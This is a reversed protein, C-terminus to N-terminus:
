GDASALRDAMEADFTRVADLTQSPELALHELITFRGPRTSPALAVADALQEVTLGLDQPRCPLHQRHLCAVLQTVRLDDGRLWSAFLAGLAALEGHNGVTPYLRDVAHLIEHCAGSCPRSSGAVSMALGSLVLAEALAVLFADDEVGDVRHLVSEAGARAFAVALGDVAEGHERGALEWDAVACLNSVADGVGSRVMRAPSRRVFDLDVVVAVPTPVGYSNKRGEHELSSVPSAIGDHALNTAVAVVPLGVRGGAHKSVDLTRGGGIAVVADFSGTSLRSSLEESAALTGSAVQFVEKSPLSDGIEELVSAGLGPGVVVAVQGGRSVLNDYLIRRLSQVAGRRVEVALPANLVRALLPM